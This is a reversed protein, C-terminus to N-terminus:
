NTGSAKASALTAGAFYISHRRQARRARGVSNHGLRGRRLEPGATMESYRQGLGGSPVGIQIPVPFRREAVTIM